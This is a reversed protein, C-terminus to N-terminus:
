TECIEELKPLWSISLDCNQLLAWTGKQTAERIM